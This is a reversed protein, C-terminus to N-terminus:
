AKPKPEGPVGEFRALQAKLTENERRQEKLQAKLTEIERRQEKLQVHVDAERADVAEVPTTM